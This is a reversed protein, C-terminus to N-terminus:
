EHVIMLLYGRSRAYANPLQYCVEYIYEEHIIFMYVHLM